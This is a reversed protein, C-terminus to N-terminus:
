AVIRSAVISHSAGSDFLVTVLTSNVLFEGLVVDPAEQAEQCDIHNVRGRGFSQAPKKQSGSVQPGGRGAGSAATRIGGSSNGQTPARNQNQKYPCNAAYHGLEWCNFCTQDNGVVRSAGVNNSRQQNISNRGWFTQAPQSPQSGSARFQLTPQFRPKQSNYGFHPRQMREQQKQKQTTFKRKRDNELELRANELLIARNMLTNFNPYIHTVLQTRLALNLGKRFRDQKKKDTDIDDMAYRSLKMFKWIYQVVTM